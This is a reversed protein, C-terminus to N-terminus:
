LCSRIALLDARVSELIQRTSGYIQQYSHAAMHSNYVHVSMVSLSVDSPFYKSSPDVLLMAKTPSLPYYLEFKEPPKTDTPNSAINIAPQDATVFPVVTHNELLVIRYRKRDAYLSYGLNVAYIHVLVNAVREFVEREGVKRTRRAKKILDTRLYQAAIGRFFTSAERPNTYFSLDGALMSALFPKFSDEISTHIDENMEAIVGHVPALQELTANGSAEFTKTIKHPLSFYRVLTEYYPKLTDPSDAIAVERIFKVDSESLERLRYFHNEAGVNRVNDRRIKGSQLCFVQADEADRGEIDWAKLYFRAVKHHLKKGVAPMRGNYHPVRTSL